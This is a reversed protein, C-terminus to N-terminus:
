AIHTWRKRNRINCINSESVGFERALDVQSRNPQSRIAIIDAPTLKSTPIQDGLRRTGHTLADAMNGKRTDWRLHAPNCCARVGCSHAADAKPFPPPGYVAECVIRHARQSHGNLQISGYGAIKGYPWLYCDAGRHQIAKSIFAAPAGSSATSSVVGGHNKWRQYHMSCMARAIVPRQCAEMKCLKM